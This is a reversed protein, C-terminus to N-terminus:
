LLRLLYFLVALSTALIREAFIKGPGSNCLNGRCYCHIKSSVSLHNAKFETCGEDYVEQVSYEQQWRRNKFVQKTDKQPACGRTITNQKENQLHLTSITKLCMTSFPCDIIFNESWDFKTCMPTLVTINQIYNKEVTVSCKFCKIAAISDIRSLMLLGLTSLHIILIKNLYWIGVKNPNIIIWAM